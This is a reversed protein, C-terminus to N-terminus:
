KPDLKFETAFQVAAKICEFTEQMSLADGGANITVDFGTDDDADIADYTVTVDLEMSRANVVYVFQFQPIGEGMNNCSVGQKVGHFYVMHDNAEEGFHCNHLGPGANIPYQRALAFLAQKTTQTTEM